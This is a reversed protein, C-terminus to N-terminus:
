WSPMARAKLSKEANKKIHLSHGAHVVCQNIRDLFEPTFLSVNDRITQLEYSQEDLWDSHGLM